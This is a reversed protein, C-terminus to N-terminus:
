MQTRRHRPPHGGTSAVRSLVRGGHAVIRRREDARYLTHYRSLPVAELGNPGRRGLVCRSDGVNACYLTKGVVLLSVATTGSDQSDVNSAHLAANTAELSRILRDEVSGESAAFAKPLRDLCFTACADGRPGHGDFVLFWPGADAEVIGLADQCPKGPEDPYLGRFVLSGWRVGHITEHSPTLRAHIAEAGLVCAARVEKTFTAHFLAADDGDDLALPHQKRSAAAGM